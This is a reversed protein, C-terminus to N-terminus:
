VISTMFLCNNYVNNATVGVVLHIIKVFSGIIPRGLLNGHIDVELIDMRLFSYGNNILDMGM